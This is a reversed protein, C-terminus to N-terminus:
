RKLLYWLFMIILVNILFLLKEKGSTERVSIRFTEKEYIIKEKNWKKDQSM